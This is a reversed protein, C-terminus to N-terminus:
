ASSRQQWHVPAPHGAAVFHRWWSDRGPSTFWDAERRERWTGVPSQYETQRAPPDDRWLQNRGCRGGTARPSATRIARGEPHWLTYGAEWLAITFWPEEPGGLTGHWQPWGVTDLLFEGPGFVMSMSARFAQVPLGQEEFARWTLGHPLWDGPQPAKDQRSPMVFGGPRQPQSRHLTHKDVSGDEREWGDSQPNTTLVGRPGVAEAQAILDDDWGPESWTHADISLGWPEGSWMSWCMRRAEVVGRAQEPPEVIMRVDPMAGLQQILDPDADHICAGFVLSRSATARLRNISHVVSPDRYSPVAVFIDTM